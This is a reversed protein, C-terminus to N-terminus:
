AVGAYIRAHMVEMMEVVVVVVYYIKRSTCLRKCLSYELAHSGTSGRLNWYIEKEKLDDLLQKCRRRGTAEIKGEFVLKLLSNRRLIHGIWNSKRRKITRLINREEKDTHSMEENNVLNTWNIKELVVYSFRAHIDIM